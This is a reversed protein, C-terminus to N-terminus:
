EYLCLFFITSEHSFPPKSLLSRRARRCTCSLSSKRSSFPRSRPLYLPARRAHCFIGSFREEEGQLHKISGVIGSPLVLQAGGQQRVLDKLEKTLAVCARANFRQLPQGPKLGLPGFLAVSVDLRQDELSAPLCPCALGLLFFLMLKPM